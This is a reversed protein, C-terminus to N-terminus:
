IDWRNDEEIAYDFYICRGGITAGTGSAIHKNITTSTTHLAACADMIGEYEALVAGHCDFAMIPKKRRGLDSRYTATM